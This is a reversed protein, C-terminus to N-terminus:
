VPLHTKKMIFVEIFEGNLGLSDNITTYTTVQCGSWKAVLSEFDRGYDWTVLAKGDGVPNGHYEPNFLYNISANSRIARPYSKELHMHKPVTFVHCGGPTLVRAIEAFALDPQFIHEMVDQTIFLDISNDPLALKELDQCQVGDKYQGSELDEFFQSSSYHESYRQLFNCSPSSEHMTLKEWGLIHKDLVYNVHRQRPIAGCQNCAFFDRHWSAYLTFTTQNRCCHCYGNSIIPYGATGTKSVRGILRRTLGALRTLINRPNM